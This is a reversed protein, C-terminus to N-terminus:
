NGELLILTIGNQLRISAEDATLTGGFFGDFIERSLQNILENGRGMSTMPMHLEREIEDFILGLTEQMPYILRWGSGRHWDVWGHIYNDVFFPLMTLNSPRLQPHFFSTFGRQVAMGHHIRQVSENAYNQTFILFDFALAQQRPTSSSSMVWSNATHPSLSILLNGSDDTLPVSPFVGGDYEFIGWSRPMGSMIEVMHRSSSIRAVEYTFFRDDSFEPSSPAVIDKLREILLSFDSETFRVHGNAFDVHETVLWDWYFAIHEVPTLYFGSDLGGLGYFVNIIDSMSLTQGASIMDILVPFQRSVTLYFYTIALPFVTLQGEESLAYFAQMVWDSEVFNPNERMLPFFDIFIARNLQTVFRADILNPVDVGSMLQVALRTRIENMDNGLALVEINVGPNYRMYVSAFSSLPQANTTVITISEGYFPNECSVEWTFVDGSGGRACGIAFFVFFLCAWTLVYRYM